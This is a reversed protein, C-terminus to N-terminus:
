IIATVLMLSHQTHHYHNYLLVNKIKQSSTGGVMQTAMWLGFSSATPYEGCLHKFHHINKEAFFGTELEDYIKDNQLDGNRGTMVCHIEEMRMNRSALLWEIEKKVREADAKGHFSHIGKLEALNNESAVSSLLFFAAGEGAITGKSGEEYFKIGPSHESRLQGFRGLITYLSPTLEEASGALATTAENEQLLLVADQLAHEFSLGGHAFTNNYAHCGLMLAVQSGVVNHTSQIFATPPPADENREIVDKLFVVTDHLCGYATGMCIAGPSKEDGVRLCASATAVGMKIIRSMRRLLKPDILKTYDPETARAQNGSLTAPSLLMGNGEFSEQPSLASTSRIYIKMSM